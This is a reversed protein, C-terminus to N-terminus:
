DKKEERKNEKVIDVNYSKKKVDIDRLTSTNVIFPANKGNMKTIFFNVKKKDVKRGNILITKTFVDSKPDRWQQIAYSMVRYTLLEDTLPNLLDDKEYREFIDKFAHNKKPMKEMMDKTNVEVLYTDKFMISTKEKSLVINNGEYRGPQALVGYNEGEYTAWFAYAARHIQKKYHKRLEGVNAFRSM